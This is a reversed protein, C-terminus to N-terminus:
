SVRDAKADCHSPRGRTRTVMGHRELVQLIAERTALREERWSHCDQVAERIACHAEQVFGARDVLDQAAPLANYADRATLWGRTSRPIGGDILDLAHRLLDTLDRVKPIHLGKGVGSHAKIEGNGHEVWPNHQPTHPLNRLLVVGQERCWEVVADLNESGNDASLVLPAEGTAEVVRQLLVVVEQSDPPPGISVGLTKTSAVDRVLEAVAATGWADRGLHTGDLSWITGRALVCVRKRAAERLRRGRSRWKAKLQKLVKRVQYLSYRGHLARHVKREGLGFGLRELVDHV